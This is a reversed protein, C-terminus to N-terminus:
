APLDPKTKKCKSYEGTNVCKCVSYSVVGSRKKCGSFRKKGCHTGSDPGTDSARDQRRASEREYKRQIQM